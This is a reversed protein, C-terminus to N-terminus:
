PTAATASVPGLYRELWALVARILEGRPFNIHGSEFVLHQKHEAATGLREFMPRQATELPFIYDHRGGVMLVPIKLRAVYNVADAEPPLARYTFRASCAPAVDSLLPPPVSGLRTAFVLRINL